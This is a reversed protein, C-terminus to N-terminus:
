KLAEYRKVNTELAFVFRRGRHMMVQKAGFGDGIKKVSQEGHCAMDESPRSGDDILEEGIYAISSHLM